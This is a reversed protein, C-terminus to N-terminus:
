WSSGAGGGDFGGGDGSSSSSESSSSSSDSKESSSSSRQNRQYEEEHRREREALEREREEIRALRRQIREEESINPDNDYADKEAKVRNAELQMAELDVGLKQLMLLQTERMLSPDNEELRIMNKIGNLHVDKENLDKVSYLKLNLFKAKNKKRLTTAWFGLGTITLIETVLTIESFSM